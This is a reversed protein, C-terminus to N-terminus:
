RADRREGGRAPGPGGGVHRLAARAADARPAAADDPDSPRSRPSRSGRPSGRPSKSTSGSGSSRRTSRARTAAPRSARRSTRWRRAASSRSWRRRQGARARGAGRPAAAGVDGRADAGAGAARRGRAPARARRARARGRLPRAAAGARARRAGLGRHRPRGPDAGDHARRPAVAAREPDEGLGVIVEVGHGARAAPGTLSRNVASGVGVTHLRSRAPLRECIAAVVQSEFGIQGDTILVVQRQADGRM